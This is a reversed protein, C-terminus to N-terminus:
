VAAAWDFSLKKTTYQDVPLPQGSAYAAAIEADTRARNSIRLDDFYANLYHSTAWALKGINIDRGSPTLGATWSTTEAIKVGNRYIRKFQGPVSWTVTIYYWDRTTWGLPSSYIAHEATGNGTIFGIANGHLRINIGVNANRQDIFQQESTVLNTRKVWFEITGEQQNLVGSTPITCLEASRTGDIFSTAYAKQELQLYAIDIQVNQNDNAYGWNFDIYITSVAPTFTVSTKTWDCVTNPIDVYAIQSGSNSSDTPVANLIQVRVNGTYNAKVRYSFSLTYTSGSTVSFSKYIQEWGGATSCVTNNVEGSYSITFRGSFFKSWNSFNRDTILNTTGEEVMIASDFRGPEFRPININTVKGDSLYALSNRAFNFDYTRPAAQVVRRAALLRSAGLAMSSIGGLLALKSRGKGYAIGVLGASVLMGGLLYPKVGQLEPHDHM